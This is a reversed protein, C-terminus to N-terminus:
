HSGVPQHTYHLVLSLLGLGIIYVLYAAGILHLAEAVLLVLAVVALILAVM